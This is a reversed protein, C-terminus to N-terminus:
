INVIHLLYHIDLKLFEASKSAISCANFCLRDMYVEPLLRGGNSVRHIILHVRKVSCCLNLMSCHMKSFISPITQFNNSETCQIILDLAIKYVIPILTAIGICRINYILSTVYIGIHITDSFTLIFVIFM